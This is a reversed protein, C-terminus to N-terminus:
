AGVQLEIEAHEISWRRVYEKLCEDLITEQYEPESRLVDVAVGTREEKDTPDLYRALVYLQQPKNPGRYEAWARLKLRRGEITIEYQDYNIWNFEVLNEHDPKQRTSM